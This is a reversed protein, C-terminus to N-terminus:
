RNGGSCKSCAKKGVAESVTIAYITRKLGSCTLSNHYRDGNDTIYIYNGGDGGCRECAHYKGGNENRLLPLDEAQVMRISLELHTCHYDKHYVLGTETVYVITDDEAPFGSKEYGTWTKIRMTEEYPIEAIHFVPIPIRIKYKASLKGIGTVPSIVSDKCDLGASGGEIISRELREAGIANIVKTRIETTSVVARPYAKGSIEKGAYQLGSRVATQIAMIEMLYMLCVVAFFFLPVAMAAEVTISGKKSTFASAREPRILNTHKSPLIGRFTSRITSREKYIEKPINLNNLSKSIRFPM